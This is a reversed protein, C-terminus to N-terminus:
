GYIVNCTSLYECLNQIKQDKIYVLKKECKKM